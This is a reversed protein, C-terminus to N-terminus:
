RDFSRKFAASIEEHRERSLPMLPVRVTDSAIVGRQHLITKVVTPYDPASLACHIFHSFTIYQEYANSINGDRFAHWMSAVGEPYIMPVSAMMGSVGSLLHHWLVSDEGALVTVDLSARLQTVKGLTTDTMKVHTIRPAADQLASIDGISLPTRSVYPNDYLCLDASAFGNLEAFYACLMELDNPFYNPCSVTLLQAECEGAVESLQKSHELSNDAISVAHTRQGGLHRAVTRIVTEREPISLSAAEGLSGGILVGDITPFLDDLLRRLSDLDLRGDLFPTPIPPVIGTVHTSRSVNARTAAPTTV